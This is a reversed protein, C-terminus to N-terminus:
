STLAMSRSAYPVNMYRSPPALSDSNAVAFIETSIVMATARVQGLRVATAKAVVSVAAASAVTARYQNGTVPTNSTAEGRTIPVYAYATRLPQVTATAGASMSLRPYYRAISKLAYATSTANSTAGSYRTKVGVCSASAAATGSARGIALRTSLAITGTATSLTNAFGHHYVFAHSSAVSQAFDFAGFTAIIKTRDQLTYGTAGAKALPVFGDRNFYTNGSRKVSAEARTYASLGYSTGVRAAVIIHPVAQISSNISYSIGKAPRIRHANALVVTSSATLNSVNGIAQATLAEGYARADGGAEGFVNRRVLAVGYASAQGSVRGAMTFTPAISVGASATGSARAQHTQSHVIAYSAVASTSVNGFTTRVYNTSVVSAAAVVAVVLARKVWSPALTSNISSGNLTRM